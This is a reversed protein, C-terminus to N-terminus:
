DTLASLYIVLSFILSLNNTLLLSINKYFDRLVTTTTPTYVDDHFGWIVEPFAGDSNQEVRLFSM